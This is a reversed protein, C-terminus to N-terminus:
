SKEPLFIYNMPIGSIESMRRLHTVDPETIGKEWNYITSANVGLADAWQHTTMGANARVARLYVKFM